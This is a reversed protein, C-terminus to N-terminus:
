KTAPASAATQRAPAPAAPASSQVTPTATDTASEQVFKQLIELYSDLADGLEPMEQKAAKIEAISNQAKARVDQVSLNGSMLGSMMENFQAAAKPSGQGFIQQQVQDVLKPDMGQARMQQIVLTSQGAAPATSASSDSGSLILPQAKPANTDPAASPPKPAVEHFTIQAILSRPLKVRGQVESLFEVNTATLAIVTGRYHDGNTLEILDARATAAFMMLAALALSAGRTSSSFQPLIM